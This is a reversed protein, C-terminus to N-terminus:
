MGFGNNLPTAVPQVPNQVMWAVMMAAAIGGIAAGHRLLRRDSIVM